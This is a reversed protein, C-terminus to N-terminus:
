NNFEAHVNSKVEIEQTSFNIFSGVGNFFMNNQKIGIFAESQATHNETDVTLASTNLTIKNEINLADNQVVVDGPFFLEFQSDIYRGKDSEFMWSKGDSGKLVVQPKTIETIETDAYYLLLPSNIVTTIQGSEDTIELLVDSVSYGKTFPKFKSEEIEVFAFQWVFYSLVAILMFILLQKLRATELM